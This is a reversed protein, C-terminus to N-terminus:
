GTSHSRAAIVTRSDVSARANRRSALSRFKQTARAASSSGDNRMGGRLEGVALTDDCIACRGARRLTLHRNQGMQACLRCCGHAQTQGSTRPNEWTPRPTLTMRSAGGAVQAGPVSGGRDNSPAGQSGRSIRTSTHTTPLTPITVHTSPPSRKTSPRCRTRMSHPPTPPRSTRVLTPFEFTTARGACLVRARHERGHSAQPGTM